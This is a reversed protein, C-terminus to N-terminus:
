VREETRRNEAGEENARGESGVSRPWSRGRARYSAADLRYADTGPGSASRLRTGKENRVKEVIVSPYLSVIVYPTLSLHASLGATLGSM